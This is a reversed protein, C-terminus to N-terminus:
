VTDPSLAPLVLWYSAGMAGRCRLVTCPAVTSLTRTVAPDAYLTRVEDGWLVEVEGALIRVPQVSM